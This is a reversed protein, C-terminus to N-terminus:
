RDNNEAAEVDEESAEDELMDSLEDMEQMTGMLENLKAEDMNEIDEETLEGMSQLAEMLQGIDDISDEEDESDVAEKQQDVFVVRQGEPVMGNLTVAKMFEEGKKEEPLAEEMSHLIAAAVMRSQQDMEGDLAIEMMENYVKEAADAAKSVGLQWLQQICRVANLQRQLDAYDLEEKMKEVVDELIKGAKESQHLVSYLRLVARAANGERSPEDSHYELIDAIEEDEMGKPVLAPLLSMAASREEEGEDENLVIERALKGAKETIREDQVNANILLMLAYVGEMGGNEAAELVEEVYEGIEEQHMLLLMLAFETNEGGIEKRVVDWLEDEDIEDNELAYEIADKRADADESKLAHELFDKKTAVTAIVDDFDANKLLVDWGGENKMGALIRTATEKEVGTLVEYWGFKKDALSERILDCLERKKVREDMYLRVLLSLAQGRAKGKRAAEFVEGIREDPVGTKEVLLVAANSEKLSSWADDVFCQPVEKKGYVFAKLVTEKTKSDKMKEKLYEVSDPTLKDLMLPLVKKMKKDLVMWGGEEKAGLLKEVTWEVIKPDEDDLLKGWFDADYHNCEWLASVCAIRAGRMTTKVVGNEVINCAFKHLLEQQAKVLADILNASNEEDGWDTRKGVKEFTTAVVGMKKTSMTTKAWRFARAMREFIKRKRKETLGKYADLTEQDPSYAKRISDVLGKSKRFKKRQKWFGESGRKNSMMKSM